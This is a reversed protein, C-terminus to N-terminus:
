KFPVRGALTKRREIRVAGICKRAHSCTSLLRDPYGARASHRGVFGLHRFDMHIDFSREIFPSERAVLTDGPYQGAASVASFELIIRGIARIWIGSSTIARRERSRTGSLPWDSDARFYAELPCSLNRPERRCELPLR